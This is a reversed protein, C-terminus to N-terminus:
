AASLHLQKHGAAGILGPDTPGYLHVSPKNLAATLHGLGTDVCIAGASGAIMTAQQAISLRPLVIAQEIGMALRQARAEELANGWPLVM